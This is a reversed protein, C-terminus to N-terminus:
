VLNNADDVQDSIDFLVLRKIFIVFFLPSFILIIQFDTLGGAEELSICGTLSRIVYQAWILANNESPQTFLGVLEM